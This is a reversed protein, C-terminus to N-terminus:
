SYKIESERLKDQIMEISPIGGYFALKGNIIIAPFAKLGMSQFIAVINDVLSLYEKPLTQLSHQAETITIIHIGSEINLTKLASRINKQLQEETSYSFPNCCVGSLIVVSPKGKEGQLMEELKKEEKKHGFLMKFM